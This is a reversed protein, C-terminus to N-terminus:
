VSLLCVSVGVSLVLFLVVNSYHTTFGLSLVTMLAPDLSYQKGCLM